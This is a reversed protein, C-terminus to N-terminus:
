NKLKLGEWVRIPVSFDLSFNFVFPLSRGLCRVQFWFLGELSGSDDKRERENKLLQNDLHKWHQAVSPFDHGRPLFPPAAAGSVRFRQYTKTKRM